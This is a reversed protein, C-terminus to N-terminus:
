NKGPISKLSENTYKSRISAKKYYSMAKSAYYKYPNEEFGDPLRHQSAASSRRQSANEPNSIEEEIEEFDQEYENDTYNADKAEENPGTFMKLYDNNFRKSEEEFSTKDIDENEDIELAKSDTEKDFYHHNLRNM